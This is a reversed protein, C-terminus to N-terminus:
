LGQKPLQWPNEAARLAFLPIFVAYVRPNLSLPKSRANMPAEAKRLTVM